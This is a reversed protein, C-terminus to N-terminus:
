PNVEEKGVLISNAFNKGTHYRVGLEVKEFEELVVWVQRSIQIHAFDLTGCFGEKRGGVDLGCSTQLATWMFIPDYSIM